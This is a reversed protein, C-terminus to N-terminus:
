AFGDEMATASSGVLRLRKIIRRKRSTRCQTHCHSPLWLPWRKVRSVWLEEERALSIVRRVPEAGSTVLITDSGHLGRRAQTELLLSKISLLYLCSFTTSRTLNLWM